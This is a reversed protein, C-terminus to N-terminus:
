PPKLRARLKNIIAQSMGDIRTRKSASSVADIGPVKLDCAESNATTLVVLKKKDADSARRLFDRLERSPRWARCSNVVLIAQYDHLPTAALRTLEIITVPHGDAQLTQTIQTVVANKFQSSEAAILVQAPQGAEQAHITSTATVLALALGAILILLHTIRGRM